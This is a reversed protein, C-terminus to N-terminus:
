IANICVSYLNFKNMSTSESFIWLVCIHFFHWMQPILLALKYRLYQQPEFRYLACVNSGISQHALGWNFQSVFLGEFYDSYMGDDDMNMTWILCNDKWITYFSKLLIFNIGSMLEGLNCLLSWLKQATVLFASTTSELSVM